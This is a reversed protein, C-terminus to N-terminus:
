VFLPVIEFRGVDVLGKDTLKLEPIVPLALFSMTMLPDPLRCGLDHAASTMADVRDRVEELPLQSMLGAIPLPVSALVREGVVVAQGGRMRAVHYAAARMDTDDSGVVVINHSDHAVSSAMAGRGLTFGRVFGRGVNGSALHREIVAIKLLDRTPDACAMGARVPVSDVSQRTVVQGPVLEIIRAGVSGRAGHPAPISLDTASWDVNMTSRLSPMTSFCQPALFAGDQAVQTGHYFV